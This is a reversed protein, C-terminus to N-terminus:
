SCNKELTMEDQATDDDSSDDYDSREMGNQEPDVVINEHKTSILKARYKHYCRRTGFMAVNIIINEGCGKCAPCPFESARSIVDLEFVSDTDDINPVDTNVNPVGVNVTSDRKNNADYTNNDAATNTNILSQVTKLLNNDADNSSNAVNNSNVGNAPEGTSHEVGVKEISQTIGM